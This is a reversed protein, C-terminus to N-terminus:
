LVIRHALTKGRHAGLSRRNAIGLHRQGITYFAAGDHEGVPAGSVMVVKGKKSRIRKKLFDKLSFKGLFCIGQSDKKAATSLKARRAM